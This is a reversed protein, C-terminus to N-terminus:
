FYRVEFRRLIPELDAQNEWIGMPTYNSTVIIKRPRIDFKGGKYEAPFPYRDAWIKLHHCLREHNRDFDEIIVVDQNDYGDWWRNCMKMYAGVNEERATRSKGTGSAGCYWQHKEETDSMTVSSRKEKLYIYELSRAHAIQIQPDIDEFRGEKAAELAVEWRRKEGIGKELNTLPRDGNEYFDGGKSCYTYNQLSDGKAVEFHAGPIIRACQELSKVSRWHIYGQLHPTGSAGVEKGVVIYTAECACVDAFQQETYNNLTFVYSRRRAMLYSQTAM